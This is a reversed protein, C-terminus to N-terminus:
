ERTPVAVAATVGLAAGTTPLAVSTTLMSAEDTALAMEDTTVTTAVGVTSAASPLIVLVELLFVEVLEYPLQLVLVVAVVTCVLVDVVM